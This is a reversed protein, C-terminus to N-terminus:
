SHSNDCRFIMGPTITLAKCIQFNTDVTAALVLNTQLDRLRKEYGAITEANSRVQLVEKVRSRFSKEKAQLQGATVLIKCIVREFEECRSKFKTAASDGHAVIQENIITLIDVASECLEQLDDRNKKVKTELLVVVIGFAGKVLPFPACEGASAAIKATVLLNALWDSTTYPRSAPSSAARSSSGSPPAPQPSRNTSM